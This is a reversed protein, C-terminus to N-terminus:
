FYSFSFLGYSRAFMIKLLLLFKLALFTIYKRSSLDDSDIAVRGYQSLWIDEYNSIQSIYQISIPYLHYVPLKKRSVISCSTKKKTTMRDLVSLVSKSFLRLRFVYLSGSVRLQGESCVSVSVRISM